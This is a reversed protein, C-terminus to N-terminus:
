FEHESRCLVSEQILLETEKNVPGYFFNCLAGKIFITDFTFLPHVIVNNLIAILLIAIGIGIPYKM